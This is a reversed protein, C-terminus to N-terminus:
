FWEAFKLWFQWLADEPVNFPPPPRSIDITKIKLIYLCFFLFETDKHPLMVRPYPEAILQHRYKSLFVINLSVCTQLDIEVISIPGFSQVFVNLYHQNLNTFITMRHHPNSGCNPTMLTQM